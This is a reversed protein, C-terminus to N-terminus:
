RVVQKEEIPDIYCGLINFRKEKKSAPSWYKILKCSMFHTSLCHFTGLPEVQIFGENQIWWQPDYNAEKVSVQSAWPLLALVAQLKTCLNVYIFIVHVNCKGHYSLLLLLFPFTGFDHRKSYPTYLRNSSTYTLWGAFGMILKLLARIVPSKGALRKACFLAELVL